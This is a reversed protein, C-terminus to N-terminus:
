GAPPIGGPAARRAETRRRRRIRRWVFVVPAILIGLVALLVAFGVFTQARLFPKATDAPGTDAPAPAAAASGSAPAPASLAKVPDVIGSGYQNDRGPAGRDTATSKVLDFVQRTSLTPYKQRVLLVVGCAIATSASTGEVTTYGGGKKLGPLDAGPAVVGVAPSVISFPSHTGDRGVSGVGLVEPDFGPYADAALTTNGIAAVIPVGKTVAYRIANEVNDDSAGGGSVCIVDAGNDVAWRIGYAVNEGMLGFSGPPWVTVPLIDAKPAIGRVGDAGGAGHGRGAIMTAMSTGHRDPSDDVRGDRGPSYADIGALVAGTLDPHAADVGTDLVAATMGTGDAVRNAEAVNLTHLYWQQDRVADARAPGAAATALLLGVVAAAASGARFRM